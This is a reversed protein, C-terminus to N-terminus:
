PKEEIRKLTEAINDLKELMLAHDIKDQTHNGPNGPNHDKKAPVFAKILLGALALFIAGLVGLEAGSM